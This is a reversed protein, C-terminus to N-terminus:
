VGLRERPHRLLLERRLDERDLRLYVMTVDLSSHGLLVQIARLSAGNKLLTTACTRRLTHPTVNTKIGAALRCRRLLQLLYQAHIRQGRATLFLASASDPHESMLGTRGDDLYEQVREYAMRTLPVIRQHDGKGRVLIERRAHDLDCLDFTCVEANRVGTSFLVDLVARDRLGAPTLADPASLLREVEKITLTAGPAKHGVRPLDVRAAPDRDVKGEALIFSFFSRWASVIRLVSVAALPKGSRSSEGTLLGHQVERLAEPTALAPSPSDLLRQLLALDALYTKVTKASARSALLHTEFLDLAAPWTIKTSKRAKPSM